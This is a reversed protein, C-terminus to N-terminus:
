FEEYVRKALQGLTRVSDTLESELAPLVTAYLDEDLSFGEFGSLNEAITTIADILEKKHDVM